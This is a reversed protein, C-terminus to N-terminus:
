HSDPMRSRSATNTKIYFYLKGQILDSLLYCNARAMLKSHSRPGTLPARQAPVAWRCLLSFPMHGDGQKSSDSTVSFKFLRLGCPGQHPWLMSFCPATSAQPEALDPATLSDGLSLQESPGKEAGRRPRSCCPREGTPVPCSPGQVWPKGGAASHCKPRHDKAILAARQTTPPKTADRAGVRRELGLEQCGSVDGYRALIIGWPLM